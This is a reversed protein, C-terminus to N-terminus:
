NSEQGLTALDRRSVTVIAWLNQLAKHLAAEAFKEEKTYM